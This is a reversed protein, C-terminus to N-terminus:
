AKEAELRGVREKVADLEHVLSGFGAVVAHTLGDLKIEVTDLRESMGRVDGRLAGIEGRIERLLQLTLNEPETM